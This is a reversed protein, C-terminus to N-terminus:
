ASRRKGPRRIGAPKGSRWGAPDEVAEPKALTERLRAVEKGLAEIAGTESSGNGAESLPAGPAGSGGALFAHGKGRPPTGEGGRQGREAQAPLVQLAVEM